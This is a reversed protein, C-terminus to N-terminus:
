VKSFVSVFPSGQPFPFSMYAHYFRDTLFGWNCHRSEVAMQYMVRYSSIIVSAEDNELLQQIASSLGQKALSNSPEDMLREWLGPYSCTHEEGACQNFNPNIPTLDTIFICIPYLKIEHSMQISGSSLYKVICEPFTKIVTCSVWQKLRYWKTVNRFWRGNLM